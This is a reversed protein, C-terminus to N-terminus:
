LALSRTMCILGEREDWTPVETFGVSRYLAIAGTRWHWVSLRATTAGRHTATSIAAMLLAKGAGTRRADPEVWLRKIESAGEAPETVIVCGIPREGLKAILVDDREHFAAPDAVYAHFRDPLDALGTALAGKEIETAVVYRELLSAFEPGGDWASVTV